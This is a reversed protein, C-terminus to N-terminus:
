VVSNFVGNGVTVRNNCLHTTELDKGILPDIRWLIFGTPHEPQETHQLHGHM